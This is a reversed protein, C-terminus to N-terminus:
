FLTMWRLHGYIRGTITASSASELAVKWASVEVQPSAQHSVVGAM